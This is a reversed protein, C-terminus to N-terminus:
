RGGGMALSQDAGKMAHLVSFCSLDQSFAKLSSHRSYLARSRDDRWVETAELEVTAPPPLVYPSQLLFYTDELGPISRRWAEFDALDISLEGVPIGAGGLRDKLSGFLPLLAAPPLTRDYQSQRDGPASEVCRQYHLTIPLLTELEEDLFEHFLVKLRRYM